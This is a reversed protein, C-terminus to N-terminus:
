SKIGPAMYETTGSCGDASEKETLQESLGFDTLVMHGLNDILVNEPKLDRYIIKKSHLYEIALLIEAACLRATNYELAYSRMYMRLDGRPHYETSNLSM